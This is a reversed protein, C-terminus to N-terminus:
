PIAPSGAYEAAMRKICDGAGFWSSWHSRKCRGMEERNGGWCRPRRCRPCPSATSTSRCFGLCAVQGRSSACGRTGTQLTAPHSRPQRGWSSHHPCGRANKRIPNKTPCGLFCPAHPEECWHSTSAALITTFRWKEGGGGGMIENKGKCGPSLHPFCAIKSQWFSHLLPEIQPFIYPFCDQHPTPVAAFTKSLPHNHEPSAPLTQCLSACPCLAKPKLFFGRKPATFWASGRWVWRQM